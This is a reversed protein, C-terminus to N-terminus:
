QENRNSMMARLSQITSILESAKGLHNGIQNLDLNPLRFLSRRRGTGKLSAQWERHYAQLKEPNRRVERRKINKSRLWQEFEPSLQPKEGNTRRAM